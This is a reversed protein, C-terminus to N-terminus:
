VIRYIDAYDSINSGNNNTIAPLLYIRDALRSFAYFFGDCCIVGVVYIPITATQQSLLFSISVSFCYIYKSYFFSIGFVIHEFALVDSFPALGLVQHEVIKRVGLKFM